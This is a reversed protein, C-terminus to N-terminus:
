YFIVATYQVRDGVATVHTQTFRKSYKETPHEEDFENLRDQFDEASYAKIVKHKM